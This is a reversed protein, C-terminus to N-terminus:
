SPRVQLLEAAQEASHLLPKVRGTGMAPSEPKAALGIASDCHTDARASQTSALLPPVAHLRLSPTGPQGSTHQTRHRQQRHTRRDSRGHSGRDLNRSKEHVSRFEPNQAQQPVACTWNKPGTRSRCVRRLRAAAVSDIGEIACSRSYCTMPSRQTIASISTLILLTKRLKSSKSSGSSSETLSMRSRSLLSRM